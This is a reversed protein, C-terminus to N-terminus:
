RSDGLNNALEIEQKTLRIEGKAAPPVFGPVDFPGIQVYGRPTQVLVPERPKIVWRAIESFRAKASSVTLPKIAGVISRVLPQDVAQGGASTRASRAEM